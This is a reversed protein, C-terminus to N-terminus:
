RVSTEKGQPEPSRASAYSAAYDRKYDSGPDKAFDPIVGLIPYDFLEAVDEQEKLRVDKLFRIVILLLALAAGIVAGYLATRTYSPSSRHDPVKGYDIIRASSGEIVSAIQDPVIVAIANAIRAAEKPNPHSVSLYFIETDEMQSTSIMSRIQAGTYDGDLQESVEDMMRESKLINIYTTVLRASASINGESMYDIQQNERINNVYVSITSTYLPTVYRTVYLLMAGGVTVACFLILWWKRICTLLLKKIDPEVMGVRGDMRENMGTEM